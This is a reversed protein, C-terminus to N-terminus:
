DTISHSTNRVISDCCVNSRFPFLLVFIVTILPSRFLAKQGKVQAEAALDDGGEAASSIAGKGGLFDWFKPEEGGEDIRTLPIFCM